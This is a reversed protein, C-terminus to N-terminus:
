FSIFPRIIKDLSIQSLIFFLYFSITRYMSKIFVSGKKFFIAIFIIFIITLIIQFLPNYGFLRYFTLEEDLFNFSLSNLNESFLKTEFVAFSMISAMRINHKIVANELFGALPLFLIFYAFYSFTVFNAM